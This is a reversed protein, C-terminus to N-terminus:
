SSGNLIPVSAYYMTDIRDALLELTSRQTRQVTFTCHGAQATIELRERETAESCPTQRASMDEVSDLDPPM